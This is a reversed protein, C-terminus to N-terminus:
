RPRSAGPRLASAPRALAEDVLGALQDLQYGLRSLEAPLLRALETRARDRDGELVAILAAAGYGAWARERQSLRSAPLGALQGGLDLPDAM